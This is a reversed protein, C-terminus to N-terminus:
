IKDYVEGGTFLLPVYRRSIRKLLVSRHCWLYVPYGIIIML